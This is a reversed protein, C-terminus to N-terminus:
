VVYVELPLAIIVSVLVFIVTLVIIFSSRLAFLSPFLPLFSLRDPLNLSVFLHAYAEAPCMRTRSFAKMAKKGPNTPSVVEGYWIKYTEIPFKDSL